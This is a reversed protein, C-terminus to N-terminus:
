AESAERAIENLSQIVHTNARVVETMAFAADTVKEARSRHGEAAEANAENSKYLEAYRARELTLLAEYHRAQEEM